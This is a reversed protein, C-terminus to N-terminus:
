KTWKRDFWVFIKTWCQKWNKRVTFNRWIRDEKWRRGIFLSLSLAIKWGFFTQILLLLLFSSQIIIGTQEYRYQKGSSQVVYLLLLSDIEEFLINKWHFNKQFLYQLLIIIIIVMILPLLIQISDKKSVDKICRWVFYEGEFDERGRERM